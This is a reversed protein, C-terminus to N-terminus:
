RPPVGAKRGAGDPPMKIEEILWKTFGLSSHPDTEPGVPCRRGHQYPFINLYYHMKPHHKPLGAKWLKELWDREVFEYYHEFKWIIPGYYFIYEKGQELTWKAGRVVPDPKSCGTELPWHRGFQHCEYAIGEMKDLIPRVRADEAFFSPEEVMQILKYNDQRLLGQEHGKRFLARIEDVDKAFLIRTDEKFPGPKAEPQKKRLLRWERCILIHEVSGGQAEAQSIKKILAYKEPDPDDMAPTTGWYHEFFVRKTKFDGHPGGKIVDLPEVVFPYKGKQQQFTPLGDWSGGYGGKTDAANRPLPRLGVWGSTRTADAPKAKIDSNGHTSVIKGDLYHDFYDSWQTSASRSPLAPPTLSQSWNELDKKLRRAIEERSGIHNHKEEKDDKM